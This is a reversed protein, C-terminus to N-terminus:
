WLANVSIVDGAAYGEAEPPVLAWADARAIASLPLDGVAIPTAQDNEVTFLVIEAMGIHSSIRRTLTALMLKAADHTAGTLRRMLTPVLVLATAMLSDPLDPVHLVPRGAADRGLDRGLAIEEGPRLALGATLPTFDAAQGIVVVADAEEDAAVMGGCRAVATAVVGADGIIRVRPVRVWCAEIGIREAIMRDADRFVEGAARLLDGARLDEGARRVNEAPSAEALLEAIAEEFSVADEPLVADTGPPLPEGIAVRRPAEMMIAPSYPSAGITAASEVAYGARLAIHTQPFDDPAFLAEAVVRGVAEPPSVRRTGVLAVGDLWLSLAEALPIPSHPASLTVRKQLQQNKEATM